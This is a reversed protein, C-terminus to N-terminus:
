YALGSREKEVTRARFISKSPRPNSSARRTSVSIIPRNLQLGSKRSSKVFPESRPPMPATSSVHHGSTPGGQCSPCDSIPAPTATPMAAPSWHAGNCDSCGADCGVGTCGVANPDACRYGWLSKVGAFVSRCKGCSGGNYNGCADCPDCCDPPHNIWPDIYLEGCGDCMGCGDSCAAVPGSDCGVGCSARWLPGCCGTPVSLFAAAAIWLAPMKM